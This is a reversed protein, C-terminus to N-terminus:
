MIARHNQKDKQFTESVPQSATLYGLIFGSILSPLILLGLKLAKMTILPGTTVRWQSLTFLSKRKSAM